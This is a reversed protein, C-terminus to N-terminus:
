EVKVLGEFHLKDLDTKITLDYHTPKVDVPLRYHDASSTLSM